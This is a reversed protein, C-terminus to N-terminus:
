SKSAGLIQILNKIDIGTSVCYQAGANITTYKATEYAVEATFFAQETTLFQVYDITALRYQRRAEALSKGALRYAELYAAMNSEALVLNARNTVQAQKDTAILGAQEIEYSAATSAMQRHQYVAAAISTIPVSLQLGISWANSDSSLLDDKDNAQRGFTGIIDLSPYYQAMLETRKEEYQDRLYQAHELEPIPGQPTKDKDLLVGLDEPVLVDPLSFEVGDTYGLLIALAAANIKISNKATEIQPLLQAIQTKIQLVDLLQNRGITQRHQTLKLLDESVAMNRNLSALQRQALLLSYFAQVVQVSIDRIGGQLDYGRLQSEYKADKLLAPLSMGSFLPQDLKFGVSYAPYVEGGFQPTGLQLSDQENNATGVFSLQPLSPAIALATGYSAWNLKERFDRITPNRAVATDIADPLTLSVKRTGPAVGAEAVIKGQTHHEGPMVGEKFQVEANFGSDDAPSKGSGHSSGEAAMAGSACALTVGLAFGLAKYTGSSNKGLSRM